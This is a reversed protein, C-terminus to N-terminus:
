SAVLKLGPHLTEWRFQASWDSIRIGAPTLLLMGILMLAAPGTLHRKLKLWSRNLIAASALLLAMLAAIQVPILIPLLVFTLVLGGVLSGM